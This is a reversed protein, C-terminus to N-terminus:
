SRCHIILSLRYHIRYLARKFAPLPISVEVLTGTDLQEAILYLRLVHHLNPLITLA